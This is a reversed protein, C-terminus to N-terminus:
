GLEVLQGAEAAEAKRLVHQATVLDQIPVGISKFFTIEDDRERGPRKGLVLDGLEAVDERRLIGERIPIVLDGADDLCDHISDVVVKSARRIAESDVERSTAEYAGAAIVMSGPRLDRGDFVPEHSTTAAVVIDAERVAAQRSPTYVVERPIRGGRRALEEVFARARAETRSTVLIREIMRVECLAEVQNRAVRGAGILAVVRADPRALMEAALGSAAGTRLDTLAGGALVAIPRGTMGDFLAVLAMMRELGRRENEYFDSVVKIGYGRGDKLFSPNFIVVAPPREPVVFSRLGSVSEGGCLLAFAERQAEIAERMPLLRLVDQESLFRLQM